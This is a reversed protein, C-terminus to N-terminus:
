ERLRYIRVPDILETTAEPYVLDFGEIRGLVFGKYFISDYGKTKRHSYGDGVYFMLYANYERGDGLRVRGQHMPLAPNLTQNNEYLIINRPQGSINLTGICYKYGASSIGRVMVAGGGVDCFDQLTPSAPVFLREFEYERECESEGPDKEFVTRNNYYCSLYNLAGWKGILDIDLLIYKVKHNKSWEILNREDGAVFANAVELDMDPRGHDNRTITKAQGFYNTWHGYDWWHLVREEGKVNEKIWEMADLWYSPIKSCYLYLATRRQSGFINDLISLLMSQKGEDNINACNPVSSAPDKVDPNWNIPNLAIMTVTFSVYSQFLALSICLACMANFAPTKQRYISHLVAFIAFSLVTFVIGSIMGPGYAAYFASVLVCMIFLMFSGALMTANKMSSIFYIGGFIAAGLFIIFILSVLAEQRVQEITRERGKDYLAYVVISAAVLSLLIFTGIKRRKGFEKMKEIVNGLEAAFAVVAVILMYGLQLVFKSKNFGVFSIPFVMVMLMVFPSREDKTFYAYAIGLHMLAILLIGMMGTRDIGFGLIGGFNHATDIVWVTFNAFSALVGFAWSFESPSATEEAVTKMLASTPKAFAAARTLYSILIPGIQVPFSPIFSIAFVAFSVGLITILVGARTGFSFLLEFIGAEASEKDIKKVLDDVRGINQQAYYLVCSFALAASVAIPDTPIKPNESNIYLEVLSQATMGFLIIVANIELFRRDLKGKMFNIISQYTIYGALVLYVILDSKSGLTVSAFAIAALLSLRLDRHKVALAYSSYFFFAGFMGWPTQESEGAALKEVIRPTSAVLAAAALGFKRGYEEAILVFVFFCILAAVVPPYMGAITALLLNDYGINSFVQSPYGTYISYWYAELYHLLPQNRHSDPHPYYAWDDHVPVEGLTLIEQTVMDYYYPDFEYFDPGASQSGVWFASFVIIALIVWVAADRIGWKKIALGKRGFEYISFLIGFICTIAINVIVLEYSYKIGFFFYELFALLPPIILGLALGWGVIEPLSRGTRRLLPLAILFGPVLISFFIALAPILNQM